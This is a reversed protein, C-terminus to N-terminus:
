LKQIKGSNFRVIYSEGPRATLASKKIQPWYKFLKWATEWIEQNAWNHFRYRIHADRELAAQVSPQRFRDASFVVWQDGTAALDSSWEEDPVSRETDYFDRLHWFEYKPDLEKLAKAM